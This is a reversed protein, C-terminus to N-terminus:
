GEACPVIKNFNNANVPLIQVSDQREFVTCNHQYSQCYGASCEASIQGGAYTVITNIPNVTVLVVHLQIRCELVRYFQISLISLLLCFM